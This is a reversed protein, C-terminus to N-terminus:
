LFLLGSYQSRSVVMSTRGSQCKDMAGTYTTYEHKKAKATNDKCYIAGAVKYRTLNANVVCSHQIYDNGGEGWSHLFSPHVQSDLCILCSWSVGHWVCASHQSMCKNTGEPTEQRSVAKSMRENM